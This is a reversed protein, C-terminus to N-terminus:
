RRSEAARACAICLEATPRAALRDAGIPLGCRACTGYTGAAVRDLARDVDALEVLAGARLGEAQSWQASLTEGEPDHEDDDSGGARISRIDSVRSEAVGVEHLLQQRRAALVEAPSGEGPATM